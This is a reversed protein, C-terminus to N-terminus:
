FALKSIGDVTRPDILVQPEDEIPYRYGAYGSGGPPLGLGYGGGDRLTRVLSSLNDLSLSYSGTACLSFTSLSRNSM